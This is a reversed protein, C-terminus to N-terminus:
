VTRGCPDAVISTCLSSVKYSYKTLCSFMRTSNQTFGLTIMTFITHRRTLPGGTFGSPKLLLLAYDIKM